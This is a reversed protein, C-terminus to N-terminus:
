TINENLVNALTSEHELRKTSPLPISDEGSFQPSTCRTGGLALYAPSSSTSSARCNDVFSVLSLEPPSLACSQTPLWPLVAMGAKDEPRTDRHLEYLIRHVVFVLGGTGRFTCQQAITYRARNGQRPSPVHQAHQRRCRQEPVQQPVKEM